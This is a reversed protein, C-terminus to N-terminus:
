HDRRAVAAGEIRGLLIRTRRNQERAAVLCRKPDIQHEGWSRGCRCTLAEDFSHDWCSVIRRGPQRGATPTAILPM